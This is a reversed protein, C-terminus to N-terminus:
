QAVVVVWLFPQERSLGNVGPPDSVDLAAATAALPPLL